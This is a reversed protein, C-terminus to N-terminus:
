FTLKVNVGFSRTNPLQGGETWNVGNATEIESPDLGPIASDILWVNNAFVGLNVDSFPTKEIFASPISYDLRLTRLKVYSADYLWREHLAFLRGWYTQAEVYYSAPEGTTVDAGEILIGGSDAGADAAPTYWWGGSGVIADREPNGLANNGVTEAGLGSYNNFMRTVSFVKGGKQFDFSFQFSFNKYRLTGFAGGTFDPLVNGLYQNTDYQPSGTSSLLIRGQDDRQYARGYIAGWEEGVREQLQIGRWSSSLVNVDVGDAIKNVYRNLTAINFSMDWSFNETRVPTVNLAVEIGKYFQEGQNDRTSSYGTSGDLSIPVPLESDTKEFYTFDLGIRNSFFQVEGGLELEERVGGRLFPNPYSSRTTLAGYSGYPTGVAYTESNAYVGPFNPAQALSARLKGFTLVNNEPLLKSFIFSASGGYTEVRNDEEYATSQWDLRASGDLYLIGDFLGLSAKAFMSKRQSKSRYSSVNPRDVSTNLSYFGETTLGGVSNANISKYNFTGIEFGASASLDIADTLDTDYNAIGFIEDLSDTSESESYGEVSLGGFGTRSNSEYTNMSRRVEVSANFDDTFEYSMGIKSFFANKDQFNLNEYVEFFPSDWFLPRTNTPSNINWSVFEGNRKYDRLRDIDLQRQWWQNFNSGLNGYGNDPFNKTQRLQYNVNTFATLKETIDFTANVTGQITNRDSNPSVSKRDINQISARISYDEGGKAFTLSTNNVSGTQYFDKVNSGNPSFPRLKGFEPDGVIWSDWHRVMQGEMRPGWSEDAYYEVMQQGDFSAWSAPHQSPDYTFTNFDQSYGGGYENQYDPLLYVNEITSSHNVTVSSVGEKAKKTTIIIVGNIGQPGYLATAAAGKLVSMEEIDDTNIDSSANVKIGDVIYLVNSNGRLRIQSNGFGTSPAGVFQVGAVKGALANSIDTERTQVLDDGKVSQQAFGISQSERKIGLATVVIGELEEAAVELQVNITSSAGVSRETTKMGVYSFVLVEGTSATISYNGDFDTQTGNSTGKVLINVGPLPLGDQDTINGSITKEQALVVQVALALFLTLLGSFKTRM